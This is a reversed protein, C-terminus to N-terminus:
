MRALDIDLGHCLRQLPSLRAIEAADLTMRRARNIHRRALRARHPSGLRTRAPQSAAAPESLMKPWNRYGRPVSTSPGSSPSQGPRRSDPGPRGHCSSKHWEVKSSKQVQEVFERYAQQKKVAPSAGKKESSKEVMGYIGMNWHNGYREVSSVTRQKQSESRRVMMGRSAPM